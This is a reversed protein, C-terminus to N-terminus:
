SVLGPVNEGAAVKEIIELYESALADRTYNQGVFTRGSECLSQYLAKDDCLKLLSDVLQEANESEICIGAGSQKVIDASEGQVAMIIPKQMAMAEFMKSPIVTAFLDSKRLHILLCDATALVTPMDEKPLRGTFKVLDSVDANSVEQEIANKNAGDGVLCFAVDTRGLERIRVAAEAVVSLGHAMGITGVYACTFKDGLEYQDRFSQSPPCRPFSDLDVGNTIVSIRDAVDVKSLINDRYGKGVAVIHTASLYMWKEITELFRFLIGKKMAGVTVISEPWIDRVELLFPCWKLWSAFTGTLGCFLQPSTSIVLNPRRVFFLFCFLASFLYSLYNLIRRAGGANAAVYTWVRIVKIGDIEERQPWISNKYGEYVIGNPVNPACTIVTIEHGAEVWRKCHEYTRSAPANGEPPFYHTFFVFHM